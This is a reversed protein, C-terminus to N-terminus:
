GIRPNALLNTDGDQRKLNIVVAPDTITVSVMGSNFNQL